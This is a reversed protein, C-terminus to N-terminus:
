TCMHASEARLPTAIGQLECYPAYLRKFVASVGPEDFSVDYPAVELHADTLDRQASPCRGTADLAFALILTVQGHAALTAPEEAHSDAAATVEAHPPYPLGLSARVSSKAGDAGLLVDFPALSGGGDPKICSPLTLPASGDPPSPELFPLPPTQATPDTDTIMALAEGSEEDACSGAYAVGYRMSVGLLRACLELFRELRHCQVTVM